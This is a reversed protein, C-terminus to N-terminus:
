VGSPKTLYGQNSLEQSVLSILPLDACGEYSEQRSLQMSM